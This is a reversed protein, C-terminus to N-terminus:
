VILVSPNELLSKLTSLFEAGAVGDIVRHDGSLTLNMEFGQVVEGNRVVPTSLIGSVALIAAQPPNIIAVFNSVGYMGLNSLTFSGGKYEHPELKGLKARAALDKIELSIEGVNKFDAYRVIPTILGGDISVAISIDVTEFRIISNTSSNFGSNIDPHSRLALATARVILDNYTIKVLHTKLQERLEMMPQANIKLSVYFHPIFTKAEQLRQGIVKRLFSLPEETFSGPLKEPQDNRSFTVLGKPQAKVLDESVIRNRPGSGTLTSLDLGKEKAIKKALPSAKIRSDTLNVRQFTIKELPAEPKFSPQAFVKNSASSEKQVEESSAKDTLPIDQSPKTGKPLDGEPTYGEISENKTETCIAIAQNVGADEGEQVIIKKLFGGDMANFEVVAKDTAVEILLDGVEIPDGEKKHWKALTGAEM